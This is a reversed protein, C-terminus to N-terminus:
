ILIQILPTFRLTSKGSGNSGVVGVKSNKAFYFNAGEFINEKGYSYFINKASIM